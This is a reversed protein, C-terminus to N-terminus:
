RKNFGKKEMIKELYVWEVQDYAKSMDLKLAMCGIKGCRREKLYHLTEHAVLINNTILRDSMFASKTKSVLNPLLPKLHNALVKAIFKYLM